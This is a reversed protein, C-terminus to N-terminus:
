KLIDKFYENINTIKNKEIYQKYKDLTEKFLKLLTEKLKKSELIEIVFKQIENYKKLNEKYYHNKIYKFVLEIMNHSSRYPCITLGKLNNNIFYEIMKSNVHYSANDMVFITNKRENDGIKILLENFFIIFSETTVCDNSFKYHLIKEKNVALILNLRKKNDTKPELYIEETRCRWVKFNNNHLIVGTEDIFVINLDLM